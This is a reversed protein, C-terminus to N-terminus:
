LHLFLILYGGRHGLADDEGRTRHPMIEAPPNVMVTSPKGKLGVSFSESYFPNASKNKMETPDITRVQFAGTALLFCAVTASPITDLNCFKSWSITNLASLCTDVNSFKLDERLIFMLRSNSDYQQHESREQACQVGSSGSIGTFV